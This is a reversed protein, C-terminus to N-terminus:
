CHCATGAELARPEDTWVLYHRHWLRKEAPAQLVVRPSQRKSGRQLQAAAIICSNTHSLFRSPYLSVSDLASLVLRSCDGLPHISAAADYQWCWWTASICGRYLWCAPVAEAAWSRADIALMTAAESSAAWAATAAATTFALLWSAALECGFTFFFM